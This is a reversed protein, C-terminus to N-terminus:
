KWTRRKRIDCITARSVGFKRGLAAGSEKSTLIEEVQAQTLKSHTAQEGRRIKHDRHFQHDDMHIYELNWVWNHTRDTDLHHVEHHKPRPGLWTEAVAHHVPVTHRLGNASLSVLQYGHSDYALRRIKDVKAVRGYNSVYYSEWHQGQYILPKWEEKPKADTM